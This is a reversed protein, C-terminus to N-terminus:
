GPETTVADSWAVSLLCSLHFLAQGRCPQGRCPPMCLTRVLMAWSRSLSMTGSATFVNFLSRRCRRCQMRNSSQPDGDDAVVFPSLSRYLCPSFFNILSNLLASQDHTNKYDCTFRGVTYPTNFVKNLFITAM